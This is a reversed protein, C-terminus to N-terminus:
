GDSLIGDLDRLLEARTDFRYTTIRRTIADQQRPTALLPKLSAEDNTLFWRKTDPRIHVIKHLIRVTAPFDRDTLNILLEARCFSFGIDDFVIDTHYGEKYDRIDELHRVLLPNRYKKLWHYVNFTKGIGTPGVIAVATRYVYEDSTQAM